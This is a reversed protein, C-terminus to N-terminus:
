LVQVIDLGRDNLNMFFFRLLRGSTNEVTQNVYDVCDWFLVNHRGGETKLRKTMRVPRPTRGHGVTVPQMFGWYKYSHPRQM